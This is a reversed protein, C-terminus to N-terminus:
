KISNLINDDIKEPVTSGFNDFSIESNIIVEHSIDSADKYTIKTTVKTDRVLNNDDLTANFKFGKIITDKVTNNANENNKIYFRNEVDMFSSLGLQSLEPIQNESLTLSINNGDTVIYNKTDGTLTDSLLEIFKIQVPTLNAFPNSGDLYGSKKLLNWEGNEDTYVTKGAQSITKIKKISNGSDIKMDTSVNDTGDNKVENSSILTNKDDIIINLSINATYNKENLTTNILAKKYKDYGSATNISAFATVTFVLVAIVIGITSFLLKKKNKM